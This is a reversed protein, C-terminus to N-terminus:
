IETWNDFLEVEKLEDSTLEDTIFYCNLDPYLLNEFEVSIKGKKYLTPVGEFYDLDKIAKEKLEWVEGQIIEGTGALDQIYPFGNGLDFMPYKETTEADCIYKGNLRKMVSNNRMGKKLTGYIFFNM